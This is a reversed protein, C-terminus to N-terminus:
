FRTWSSARVVGYIEFILETPWFSAGEAYGRQPSAAPLRNRLAMAAIQSRYNFLM